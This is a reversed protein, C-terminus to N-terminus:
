AKKISIIKSHATFHFFKNEDDVNWRSRCNNNYVTPYTREIIVKTEYQNDNGQITLEAPCGGDQNINNVIRNYVKKELKVLKKEIIVKINNDNDDDHYHFPVAYQIEYFNQEDEHQKMTLACLQRYLEDPIQEKYEDIKEQIARSTM